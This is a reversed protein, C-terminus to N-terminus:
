ERALRKNAAIQKYPQFQIEAIKRSKVADNIDEFAGVYKQVGNDNVTVLWKNQQKSWTV